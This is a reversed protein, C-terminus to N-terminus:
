SGFKKGGLPPVQGAGLIELLHCHSLFHRDKLVEEVRAHLGAIM